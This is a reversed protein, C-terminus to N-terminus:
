NTNTTNTINATSTPSYISDVMAQDGFYPLPFVCPVGSHMSAMLIINTNLIQLPVATSNESEEENENNSSITAEGNLNDDDRLGILVYCKIQRKGEALVKVRGNEDVQDQPQIYIMSPYNPWTSPNTKSDKNEEDGGESQNVLSCKIEADTIQLNQSVSFDIYIKEGKNFKFPTNFGKIPIYSGTGYNFTSFCIGYDVFFNEGSNYIAFPKKEQSTNNLFRALMEM